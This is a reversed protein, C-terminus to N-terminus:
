RLAGIQKKFLHAGSGSMWALVGAQIAPWWTVEWGAPYGLTWVGLTAALIPLCLSVLFFTLTKWKGSLEAFGPVYEILLSTLTALVANIVGPQSCALLTQDWSLFM